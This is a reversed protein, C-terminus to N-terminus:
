LFNNVRCKQSELWGYGSSSPLHFQFQVRWVCADSGVEKRKVSAALCYWRLWSAVPREPSLIQPAAPHNCLLTEGRSAASITSTPPILPLARRSADGILSEAQAALATNPQGLKAGTRVHQIFMLVGLSQAELRM